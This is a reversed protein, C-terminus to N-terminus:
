GETMETMISPFYKRKTLASFVSFDDRKLKLLNTCSLISSSIYM